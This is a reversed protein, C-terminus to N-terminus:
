QEELYDVECSYPMFYVSDPNEVFFCAMNKIVKRADNWNLYRAIEIYDNNFCEAIVSGDNCAKIRLADIMVRENQSLIRM